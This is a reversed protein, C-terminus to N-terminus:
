HKQCAEGKEGRPIRSINLWYDAITTVTKIFNEFKVPKTIYNNCGLQYAKEVDGDSESSTLVIVPISKLEEDQKIQKLVDFGNVKPMKLDLLILCPVPVDEYGKGKWLFYLAQEGGEVVYLKNRIKGQKFARVTIVIDDPDDDVLLIPYEAM